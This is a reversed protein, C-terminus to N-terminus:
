GWCPANSRVGGPPVDGLNGNLRQATSGSAMEKADLFTETRMHSAVKWGVIMRSFVDIIFCVYAARAWTPVLTLDTV